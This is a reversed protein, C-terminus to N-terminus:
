SSPWGRTVRHVKGAIVGKLTFSLGRLGAVPDFGISVM